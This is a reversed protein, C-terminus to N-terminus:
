QSRPVLSDDQIEVEIVPDQSLVPPSPKIGDIAPGLFGALLGGIFAGMGLNTTAKNSEDGMIAGVVAGIAAGKAIETMNSISEQLSM